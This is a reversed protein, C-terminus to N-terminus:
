KKVGIGLRDSQDELMRYNKLSLHIMDLAGEINSNGTRSNKATNETRVDAIQEALGELKTYMSLRSEMEKIQNEYIQQMEKRKAQNNEKDEIVASRLNEDQLSDIIEDLRPSIEKKKAPMKKEAPMGKMKKKEPPKEKAPSEETEHCLDITHAPTSTAGSTNPLTTSMAKARSESLAKARYESVAKARSESLAKADDVVVRKFPTAEDRGDAPKRKRENKKNAAVMPRAIDGDKKGDIGVFSKNNPADRMLLSGGHQQPIPVEQSRHGNKKNAAVMPRAIDGNKKGDIGVFSKSNPADRMVLSGGRQQPISVEQSRYVGSRSNRDAADVAVGACSNRDAADVRYLSDLMQQREVHEPQQRGTAALDLNQQPMQQMQQPIQPVQEQLLHEMAVAQETETIKPNLERLKDQIKQAIKKKLTQQLTEQLSKGVSHDPHSESAPLITAGENSQENIEPGNAWHATPAQAHARALTHYSMATSQGQMQRAHHAQVALSQRLIDLPQQSINNPVVTNVQSANVAGV